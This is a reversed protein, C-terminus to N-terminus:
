MCHYLSFVLLLSLAFSLSLSLRVHIDILQLINPHRSSRMIAIESELNSVLKKNRNLKERNISKVAVVQKTDKHYCSYVTAFAGSGIEEYVVYDGVMRRRNSGSM